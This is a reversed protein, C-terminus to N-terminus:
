AGNGPATGDIRSPAGTIRRLLPASAANMAPATVHSPNVIPAAGPTAAAPEGTGPAGSQEMNGASLTQFV